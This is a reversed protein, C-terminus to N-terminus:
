ERPHKKALPELIAIAERTRGLHLLTAAYDSRVQYPAWEALARPRLAKERAAWDHKPPQEVMKLLTAASPIVTPTPKPRAKVPAPNPNSIANRLKTIISPPEYENICPLAPTATVLLAVVASCRISMKM